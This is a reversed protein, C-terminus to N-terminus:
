YESNEFFDSFFMDNDNNGQKHQFSDDQIYEDPDQCEETTDEPLDNFYQDDYANNYDNTHDYDQTEDNNEYQDGSYFNDNANTNFM